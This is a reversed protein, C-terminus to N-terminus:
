DYKQRWSRVILLEIDGKADSIHIETDSGQVLVDENMIDVVPETAIGEGLDEVDATTDNSDDDDDDYGGGNRFKFSYLWSHGGASCLTSAPSISTVYVVEAVLVASTFVREGPQQVLDVYWGRQAASILSVVITQDVLEMQTVTSVTHDDYVCYFSQQDTTSFDPVDLYQGTGFYVFVDDNYDVTLIPAAQIPQGASSYLVSTSPPFTSLDIRHMNGALDGMYGLDTTGDLDLDVLTAGTTMNKIPVGFSDTNTSLASTWLVSGNSMDLIVISAVGTVDNPGTGVVMVPETSWNVDAIAPKSWSGYLGAIDTEWLLGPLDPDTVDLAFYTNGGDRMGGVLVTKWTGMIKQDAVTPTLDVTYEHCYLTDALSPLDVLARNPIYSWVEVGTDMDFAHMMGDNAGVYLMDRRGANAIAFTSYSPDLSFGGPARIPVPSSDVVDGLKWAGRERLGFVSEGRTWDIVPEASTQDPMGMAAYLNGANSLDFDVAINNVSTWIVRTAPDRGALISGAEWVPNDGLSYPLSFAEVFGRWGAPLFKARFLYDTSQDESSVVAVSSGASIRDVIDKLVGNLAATLGQINNTSLFLGDGNAATQALLPSNITYGVVYTVINQLGDLDPRHDHTFMYGAVDDMYDSCDLSDPYPAGISTCSGPENGDGDWDGIYAPVNLDYTPFGDTVVIVFSKQCDYQFGIFKEKLSADEYFTSIDVLSEATPAPGKPSIGMVQNVINSRPSGMKALENGGDGGSHYKWVSFRIEAHDVVLQAIVAKAAQIRTAAPLSAREASTANYFIWNLYNGPYIGDNGTDSDVLYATPTAPLLNDFDWPSHTGDGKVLYDAAPTFPGAYMISQNYNDHFVATNMTNASSVLFTVNGSPSNLLVPLPYECAQASAFGPNMVCAAIVLGAAVIINWINQYNRKM